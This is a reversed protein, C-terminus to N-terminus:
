IGTCSASMVSRRSVCRSSPGFCRRVRLGVRDLVEVYRAVVGVADGGAEASKL